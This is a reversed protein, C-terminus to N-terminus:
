KNQDIRVLVTWRNTDHFDDGAPQAVCDSSMVGFTLDLENEARSTALNIAFERDSISEPLDREHETLDVHYEVTATIHECDLEVGDHKDALENPSDDTGGDTAPMMTM